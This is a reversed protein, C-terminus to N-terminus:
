GAATVVFLGKGLSSEVNDPPVIGNISSGITIGSTCSIGPFLRRVLAMLQLKTHWKTSALYSSV